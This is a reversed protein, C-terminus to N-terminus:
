EKKALQKITQLQIFCCSQWDHQVEDEVLQEANSIVVEQLHDDFFKESTKGMRELQYYHLLMPMDTHSLRALSATDPKVNKRYTLSLNYSAILGDWNLLSSLILAAYCIWSNKRFLFWSSKVSAIKILSTVLGAICLILFLYVSLRKHTVGYNSVYVWNRNATSIILL